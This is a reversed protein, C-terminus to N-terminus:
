RGTNIAINIIVWVPILCLGIIGCVVGAKTMGRGSDDMRGADMEKLDAKGMFLALLGFVIPCCFFSLIGFALIM